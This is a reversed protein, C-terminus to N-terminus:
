HGPAPEPFYHIDFPRNYRVYVVCAAQKGCELAHPSANGPMSMFAPGDFRTRTGDHTVLTFAGSLWVYTEDSTHNHM